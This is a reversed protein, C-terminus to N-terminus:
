RPLSSRGCISVQRPCPRPSEASPNAAAPRQSSCRDPQDLTGAARSPDVTARQSPWGTWCKALQDGVTHSRHPEDAHRTTRRRWSPEPSARPARDPRTPTPQRQPRPTPSAPGARRRPHAPPRHQRGQRRHGRARGRHGRRVSWRYRRGPRHQHRGAGPHRRRHGHASPNTETGREPRGAAGAARWRAPWGARVTPTRHRRPRHRGARGWGRGRPPRRRHGSAPARRPQLHQRHQPGHRAHGEAPRPQGRLPGRGGRHVAARPRAAPGAAPDTSRRSRPTQSMLEAM